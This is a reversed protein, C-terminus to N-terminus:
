LMIGLKKTDALISPVGQNSGMVANLFRVSALFLCLRLETQWGVTGLDRHGAAIGSHHLSGEQATAGHECYYWDSTSPQSLTRSVAECPFEPIAAFLNMVKVIILVGRRLRLLTVDFLMEM